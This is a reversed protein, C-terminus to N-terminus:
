LVTAVGDVVIRSTGLGEIKAGMKILFNGLDEIEPELAANEIITRGKALVAGM